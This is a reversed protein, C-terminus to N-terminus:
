LEFEARREEPILEVFQRHRQIYDNVFPCFPLVALGRERADNLAFAILRGGLGHGEFEEDIETHVLEILGAKLRYTAFGALEGGSHIEYRKKDADDAIEIRVVNM